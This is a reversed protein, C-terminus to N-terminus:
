RLMMVMGKMNIYKIWTSKMTKNHWLHISNCRKRHVYVITGDINIIYYIMKEYIQLQRGTMFWNICINSWNRPERIGNGGMIQRRGTGNGFWGFPKWKRTSRLTWFPLDWWIIKPKRKRKHKTLQWAQIKCSCHKTEDLM